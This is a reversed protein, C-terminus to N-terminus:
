SSKSSIIACLSSSILLCRISLKLLEPDPSLPEGFHNLEYYLLNTIISCITLITGCVEECRLKAYYENYLIENFYKTEEEQIIKDIFKIAFLDKHPELEHFSASPPIKSSM